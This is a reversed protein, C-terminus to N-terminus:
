VPHFLQFIICKIQNKPNSKMEIMTTMVVLAIYITKKTKAAMIKKSM